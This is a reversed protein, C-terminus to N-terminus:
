LFFVFQPHKLAFRQPSFMQVQFLYFSSVELSFQTILLKMIQAGQVPHALLGQADTPLLNYHFTTPPPPNPSCSTTCTV